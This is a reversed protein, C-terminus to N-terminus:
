LIIFDIKNIRSFRHLLETDQRCLYGCGRIDYMSRLTKPWWLALYCDHANSLLELYFHAAQSCLNANSCPMVYDFIILVALVVVIIFFNIHSTNNAYYALSAKKVGM